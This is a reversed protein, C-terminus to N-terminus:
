ISANEEQMGVPPTCSKLLFLDVHRWEVVLESFLIGLLWFGPPSGRAPAKMPRWGEMGGDEGDSQGNSWELQM